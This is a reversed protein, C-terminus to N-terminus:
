ALGRLDRLMPVGSDSFDAKESKAIVLLRCEKITIKTIAKM